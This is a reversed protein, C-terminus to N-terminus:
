MLSLRAFSGLSRCACSSHAATANTAEVSISGGHLEVLERASALGIGTGAFRGVVNAGRHFRDFVYPLDDTGSPSRVEAAAVDADACSHGDAVARVNTASPFSLFPRDLPEEEAYGFAPPFRTPGIAPPAPAALICM